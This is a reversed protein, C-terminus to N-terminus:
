AATTKFAAPDLHHRSFLSYFDSRNRRALRAAHSVNGASIKLLQVLYEREFKRRADDFSDIEQQVHALAKQVLAGPVVSTTSLAVTQEVVNVLQRVNGPWRARILIEMAEPAFGNVERGYSGAIQKLFYSALM